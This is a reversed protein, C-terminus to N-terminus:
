FLNTEGADGIDGAIIELSKVHSVTEKLNRKKM